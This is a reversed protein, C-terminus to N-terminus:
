LSQDSNGSIYERIEDHLDILNNIQISNSVKNAAYSEDDAYEQVYLAYDSIKGELAYGTTSNDIVVLCGFVSSFATDSVIKQIMDHDNQDLKKYWEHLDLEAQSPNRGVPGTELTEMMGTIVKEYARSAMKKLFSDVETIQKMKKGKTHVWTKM